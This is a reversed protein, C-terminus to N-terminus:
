QGLEDKEEIAAVQADMGKSYELEVQKEFIGAARDVREWRELKSGGMGCGSVGRAEGAMGVVAVRM